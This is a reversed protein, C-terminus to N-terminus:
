KMCFWCILYILLGSGGLLTLLVFGIRVLTSDIGFYEAIGGCVGLWKKDTTSLHLKKPQGSVQNLQTSSSQTLQQKNLNTTNTKAFVGIGTFLLIITVLLLYCLLKKM